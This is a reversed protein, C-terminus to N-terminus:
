RSVPTDVSARLAFTSGLTKGKLSLLYAILDDLDQGTVAVPPMKNEPKDAQPKPLYRLLWAANRRTGVASLDPGLVGGSGDIKHCLACRQAVFIDRGNVADGKAAPKAAPKQEAGRTVVAGALVLGACMAVVVNKLNVKHRSQITFHFIPFSFDEHRKGM